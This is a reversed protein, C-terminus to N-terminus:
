FRPWLRYDEDFVLRSREANVILVSMATSFVPGMAVTNQANGPPFSVSGSPLQHDKIQTFIRLIARRYQAGRPDSSQLGGPIGDAGPLSVSGRKQREFGLLAERRPDSFKLARIRFFNTYFYNPGSWEIPHRALWALNQRVDEERGDFRALVWGGMSSISAVALGETDVSFGGIQDAEKAQRKFAGLMFRVARETNASRVEIGYKRAALYCLLAWASARRDNRSGKRGEMKWGGRSASSSSRDQLQQLLRIARYLKKAARTRLEQDRVHELGSMLATASIAHSETRFLDDGLDGSPRSTKDLYAVAREILQRDDEQPPSEVSLFALIAVATQLHPQVAGFSGDENQQTRLFALANDLLVARQREHPLSAARCPLVASLIALVTLHFYRM